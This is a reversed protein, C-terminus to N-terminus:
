LAFFSSQEMVSNMFIRVLLFNIVLNEIQLVFFETIKGEKHTHVVIQFDFSDTILIMEREIELRSTNSTLYIGLKHNCALRFYPFTELNIRLISNALGKRSERVKIAVSRGKQLENSTIQELALEPLDGADRMSTFTNDWRIAGNGTANMDLSQSSVNVETISDLDELASKLVDFSAKM